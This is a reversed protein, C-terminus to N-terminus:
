PGLLFTDIEDVLYAQAAESTATSLRESGTRGKLIKKAAAVKDKYEATRKDSWTRIAEALADLRKNRDDIAAM